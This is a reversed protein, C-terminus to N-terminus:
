KEEESKVPGKWNLMGGKLQRVNEFGLARMISAASDSRVAGRCYVLYKAGQDLTSVRERFDGKKIDILMAGPIHLSDFERQTRVDLLVVNRDAIQREFSEPQLVKNGQASYHACSGGAIIMMALIMVGKYKLLPNKM